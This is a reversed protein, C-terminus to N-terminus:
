AGMLYTSGLYIAAAVAIIQLAPILTLRTALLGRVGGDFRLMIVMVTGIILLLGIFTGIIAYWELRFFSWVLVGLSVVAAVRELLRLLMAVDPELSGWVFLKSGTIFVRYLLVPFILSGMMVALAAYQYVGGEFTM